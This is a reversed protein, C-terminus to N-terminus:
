VSYGDAIVLWPYGLAGITDSRQQDTIVLIINPKQM